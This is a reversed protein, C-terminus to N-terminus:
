GLAVRDSGSSHPGPIQLDSVKGQSEAESELKLVVM